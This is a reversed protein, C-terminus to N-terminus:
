KLLVLSRTLTQDPTQLQYLYVGSALDRPRFELTHEGVPLFADVLRDVERGQLDFLRLSVHGELGVVFSITTSPNFPNPANQRLDTRLLNPVPVSTSQSGVTFLMPWFGMEVEAVGGSVPGISPQGVTFEISYTTSAVFGGGGAIVTPDFVEGAARAPAANAFLLALLVLAPISRRLINM